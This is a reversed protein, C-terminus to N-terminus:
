YSAGYEKLLNIIEEPAGVGEAITLNTVGDGSRNDIDVGHDLLLKVMEYNTKPSLLAMFLVKSGGVTPQDIAGKQFLLEVMELNGNRAATILPTSGTDTQINPDAGRNLLLKVMDLNDKQAAKYLLTQEYKNQKNIDDGQNM